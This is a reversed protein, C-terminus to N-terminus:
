CVLLFRVLDELSFDANVLGVLETLVGRLRLAVEDFDKLWDTCSFDLLANSCPDM